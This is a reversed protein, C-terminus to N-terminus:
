ELASVAEDEIGAGGYWSRAESVVLVTGEADSESPGRCEFM